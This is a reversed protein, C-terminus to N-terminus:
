KKKELDALNEVLKCDKMRVHMLLGECRGDFTVLMGKELKAATEKDDFYCQVERFSNQTSELKVYINGSIDKKIDSVIGEVYLTKGKFNEDARVENDTYNQILQTASYTHAKREDIVAMKEVNAISDKQAQSLEPAAATATASSDAVVTESTSSGKSKGTTFGFLIFSIILALGYFTNSKKKTREQKYWFLSKDPSFFGIILLIMCALAILAFLNEM